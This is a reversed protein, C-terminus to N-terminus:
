LYSLFTGQERAEKKKVKPPFDTVVLDEVDKMDLCIKCAEVHTHLLLTLSSGDETDV